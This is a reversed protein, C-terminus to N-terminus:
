QRRLLVPQTLSGTAERHTNISSCIMHHFVTRAKDDPTESCDAQNTIGVKQGILVQYNALVTECTSLMALNGFLAIGQADGVLTTVQYVSEREELNAGVSMQKSTPVSHRIAGGLSIIM